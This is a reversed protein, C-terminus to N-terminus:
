PMELFEKETLNLPIELSIKNSVPDMLGEALSKPYMYSSSLFEWSPQAIVLHTMYNSLESASFRTDQMEPELDGCGSVLFLPMLAPVMRWLIRKYGM